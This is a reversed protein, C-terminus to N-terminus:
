KQHGGLSKFWEHFNNRNRLGTISDTASSNSLIFYLVTEVTNDHNQSITHINHILQTTLPTLNFIHKPTNKYDIILNIIKKENQSINM